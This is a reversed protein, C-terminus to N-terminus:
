FGYPRDCWQKLVQYDCEPMVTTGAEVIQLMRKGVGDSVRNGHLMFFYWAFPVNVRQDLKEVNGVFTYDNGKHSEVKALKKATTWQPILYMYRKGALRNNPPETYDSVDVYWHDCFRSGSKGASCNMWDDFLRRLKFPYRDWGPDLQDMSRVEKEGTWGDTLVYQQQRMETRELRDLGEAEDLFLGVDVVQTLSYATPRVRLRDVAPVAYGDEAASILERENTPVSYPHPNFLEKDVFENEVVVTAQVFDSANDNQRDHVLYLSELECVSLFLRLGALRRFTATAHGGDAELQGRLWQEHDDHVVTGDRNVVKRKAWYSGSRVAVLKIDVLAPSASSRLLAILAKHKEQVPCQRVQETLGPIQLNYLKM